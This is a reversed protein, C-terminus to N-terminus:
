LGVESSAQEYLAGYEEPHRSKLVALALAQAKSRLRAREKREKETFVSQQRGWTKPAAALEDALTRVKKPRPM